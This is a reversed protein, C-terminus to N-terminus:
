TIDRGNIPHSISNASNIKINLEACRNIQEQTLSFDELITNSLTQWESCERLDEKDFAHPVILSMIAIAIMVFVLDRIGM